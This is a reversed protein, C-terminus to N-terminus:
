DARLQMPWRGLLSYENKAGLRSHMLVFDTIPWLIPAIPLQGLSTNARRLVTVHPIFHSESPDLLGVDHMAARLSRWLMQLADCPDACRLVWPPTLGPFSAVKDLTITFPPASIKEAGIKAQEILGPRLQPYDGLFLLTLHLRESPIWKGNAHQSTKLSEAVKLIDGRVRDNPLLAFFLRHRERSNELGFTQSHSHKTEIGQDKTAM